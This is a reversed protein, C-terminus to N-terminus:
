GGAGAEGCPANLDGPLDAQRKHTPHAAFPEHTQAPFVPQDPISIQIRHRILIALVPPFPAFRSREFHSGISMSPALRYNKKVSRGILLCNRIVLEAQVSTNREPLIPRPLAQIAKVLVHIAVHLLIAGSICPVGALWQSNLPRGAYSTANNLFQDQTFCISIIM